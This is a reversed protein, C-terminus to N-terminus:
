CPPKRIETARDRLRREAFARVLNVLESLATRTVGLRTAAETMTCGLPKIVDELLVEGAHTAKRDTM